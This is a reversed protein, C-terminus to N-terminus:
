PRAQDVSCQVTTQCSGGIEASPDYTEVTRRPPYPTPCSGFSSVHKSSDSSYPDDADDHDDQDHERDEVEHPTGSGFRDVAARDM